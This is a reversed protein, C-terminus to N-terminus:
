SKRNHLNFLLRTHSAAAMSRSRPQPRRSQMCPRAHLCPQERRRHPPLNQSLPKGTHYSHHGRITRWSSAGEIPKAGCRTEGAGPNAICESCHRAKDSEKRISVRNGSHMDRQQSTDQHDFSCGDKAVVGHLPLLRSAAAMCCDDAPILSSSEIRSHVISAGTYECALFSCAWCM